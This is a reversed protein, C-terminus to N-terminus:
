TGNSGVGVAATGKLLAVLESQQSTGTKSFIRALYTRASNYEIKMEAASVKLSKGAALASALRAEAPALDFLASLLDLSPLNRDSRVQTAIVLIDAGSFIDRAARRLPLVHMVMPPTDDDARVPISRVVPQVADAAAGIARLFLANATPQALALGGFATLEFSAGMAEFLANAARLRGAQSLVAAPLGLAQLASTTAQARELRLRAAILGARALHPWCADLAAIQEPHHRGDRRLREFTLSAFEGTPVPIVTTLQMGLGLKALATDVSDGDVKAYDSAYFFRLGTLFTYRPSFVLGARLSARWADTSTFAALASATLSTTKYLPPRDPSHFVLLSGAASGSVATLRDLVPEWMEPVFAAEYISDVLEEHM